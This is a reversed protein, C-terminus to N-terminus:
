RVRRFDYGEFSFGAASADDSTFTFPIEDPLSIFIPWEIAFTDDDWHRIKGAYRAEGANVILPHAADNDQNLSVTWEGFLDSKYTGTYSSLPHSPPKANKPPEPKRALLTDLKAAKDAIETQLDAAGPGSLAQQLIWARVAEPFATLNLNCLIAIGLGAEPVVAVLTRYGDLAGGKELIRHAGYYYVGWGPSYAYGTNASIPPFETFSIESALVPTFMEEVADESLIKRGDLSGRGLLMRVYAALDNATSALGGAAVFVSSLNNPLVKWEGDVRAHPRAFNDTAKVLEAAVGTRAMALPDLLASQVLAEFTSGNARAATEGALFFGINSYESHDRFSYAPGVHRIHTLIWDRSYGLHDFLDGFFEKFGARHTLFDVSTVNRTPFEQMMHFDPLIEVVPQKWQLKGADVMAATASATFIKSVSALQFVTDGDVRDDPHAADRIGYGKVFAPAGNQIVVVAAGPVHYQELAKKIFGDLGDADLPASPTAKDAAFLLAPALAAAVASTKLSM